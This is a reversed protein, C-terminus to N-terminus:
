LQLICDKAQQFLIRFREESQRIAAEARKRETIDLFTVVAGVLRGSERIPTSALEVPFSRGDKRWFVETSSRHTEGDCLTAHITCEKGPYFSGDAKTHHWIAHSPCGLLEDPEYGLMRAAAPNVFTHNGQLDLGLIGEAASRLILENQQHLRALKAEAQEHGGM